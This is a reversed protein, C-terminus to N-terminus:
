ELDELLEFSRLFDQTDEKLLTAEKKLKKGTLRRLQLRNYFDVARNIYANRPIKAKRVVKEVTQFTADNLKLLLAKSM